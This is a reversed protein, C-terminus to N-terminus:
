PGAIVRDATLAEIREEDYGLWRMLEATHEGPRPPTRLVTSPTDSFRILSGVQRLRGMEPHQTEAVLGLRVNDEDFLVM